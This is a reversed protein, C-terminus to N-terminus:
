LGIQIMFIRILLYFLPFSRLIHSQQNTPGQVVHNAFLLFARSFVLWHKEMEIVNWFGWPFCCWFSYESSKGINALLTFCSNLSKFLTWALLLNHMTLSVFVHQRSSLHDKWPLCRLYFTSFIERLQQPKKKTRRLRSLVAIHSGTM